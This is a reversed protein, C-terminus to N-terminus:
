RPDLGAYQVKRRRCERGEGEADGKGEMRCRKKERERAKKREKGDRSVGPSGEHNIIEITM